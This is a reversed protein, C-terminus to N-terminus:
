TKPIPLREHGARGVQQAAISGCLNDLYEKARKKDGGQSRLKAIYDLREQTDPGQQEVPAPASGPTPRSTAHMAADFGGAAGGEVAFLDPDRHAALTRAEGADLGKDRMLVSVADAQKDTLGYQDSLGRLQAQRELKELRDSVPDSAPTQPPVVDPKATDAPSDKKKLADLEERLRAAEQRHKVLESLPVTKDDSSADATQGEPLTGAPQQDDKSAQHDAM